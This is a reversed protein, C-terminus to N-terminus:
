HESSPSFTHSYTGQTYQSVNFQVPLVTRTGAWDFYIEASYTGIPQNAPVNISFSYNITTNAALNFSPNTITLWSSRTGGKSGSISTAASGVNQVPVTFSGSTGATTASVVYASPTTSGNVKLLPATGISIIRSALNNEVVTDGVLDSQVRINHVGETAIWDFSTTTSANSSLTIWNSSIERDDIYLRVRVNSENSTGYNNITASINVTSNVVPNSPSYQVNFAAFDHPPTPNITVQGVARAYQPIYENDYIMAWISYTGPPVGTTNRQYSEISSDESILLEVWTHNEENVWPTTTLDTDYALSIYANSNNDNDQWSVTIIDGPEITLNQGPSTLTITPIAGIDVGGTLPITTNPDADYIQPTM